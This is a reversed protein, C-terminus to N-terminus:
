GTEGAKSGEGVQMVAEEIEGVYQKELNDVHDVASSRQSRETLGRTDERLGPLPSRGGAASAKLDAVENRLEMIIRQYEAIHASVSLVNRAVQSLSPPASSSALM